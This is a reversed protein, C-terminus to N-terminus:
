PPGRFFSCSSWLVGCVVGRLYCRRGKLVGPDRVAKAGAQWQALNLGACRRSKQRSKKDNFFTPRRLCHLCFVGACWRVCLVEESQSYVWFKVRRFNKGRVGIVM